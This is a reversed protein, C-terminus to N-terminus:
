KIGSPQGVIPPVQLPDIDGGSKLIPEIADWIYEKGNIIASNRCDSVAVLMALIAEDIKGQRVVMALLDLDNSPIQSKGWGGAWSAGYNDWVRFGFTSQNSGKDIFETAQIYIM